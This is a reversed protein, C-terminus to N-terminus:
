QEKTNSIQCVPVFVCLLHVRPHLCCNQTHCCFGHKHSALSVQHENSRSFVTTDPREYHTKILINEIVTNKEMPQTLPLATLTSCAVYPHFCQLCKFSHECKRCLSSRLVPTQKTQKCVWRIIWVLCIHSHVGLFHGTALIHFVVSFSFFFFFVLHSFTM